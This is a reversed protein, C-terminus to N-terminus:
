SGIDYGASFAKEGAGTIVAVRVDSGNSWQKLALHIKVILDPSLANRKDPRNLTLTGIHDKVEQKLIDDGM